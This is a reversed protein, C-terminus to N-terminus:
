PSPRTPAHNVPLSSIAFTEKVPSTPVPLFTIAAAALENFSTVM